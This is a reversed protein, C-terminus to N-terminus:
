HRYINLDWQVLKNNIEPNVFTVPASNLMLFHTEGELSPVAGPRSVRSYPRPSGNRQGRSVRYGCFNASVEGVLPPRETTITRKRVLFGRLKTKEKPQSSSNQMSYLNKSFHIRTIPHVANDHVGSRVQALVDPFCRVSTIECKIKGCTDKLGISTWSNMDVNKAEKFCFICTNADDHRKTRQLFSSVAVRIKM